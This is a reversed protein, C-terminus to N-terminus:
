CHILTEIFLSPLPSFAATFVVLVVSMTLILRTSVDSISLDMNYKFSKTRYSLIQFFPHCRSVDLSNVIRQIDCQLKSNTLPWFMIELTPM